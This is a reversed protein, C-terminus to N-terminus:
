NKKKKVLIYESSVSDQTLFPVEYTSKGNKIKQRFLCKYRSYITGNKSDGLIM